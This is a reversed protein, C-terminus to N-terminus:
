DGIVRDVEDFTTVGEAVLSFGHMKLNQFRSQALAQMIEGQNNRTIASRIRDDITMLEFVGRRGAYGTGLCKQCGVARYIRELDKYPEGMERLQEETPAAPQKCYPCLTRVLRQALLLNLGSTIQFPEIGLDLLRFVSGLTDRSHVTSFVLHGTMAAQMATKATEVDRIEGVLIVDPDQRLTSRLLAAFTSGTEEHVPMQTVGEIQIEVPDEITVVNRESADISRLIAYLTSTKGSGTPGCVLLMGADRKIAKEITRFMQEPLNLDWLYRPANASDLCRIVLKQGFISPTMSVRYDVKRDPVRAVFNGEQVANRVSIDIDCLIKVLSLFRIGLDKKLSTITVMSGDVRIRVQYQDHKPEIHIDSARTRFCCLLVLRLLTVAEAPIEGTSVNYAGHVVEGRANILEIDGIGFPKFPLSEALTALQRAPSVGESEGSFSPMVRLPESVEPVPQPESLVPESSPNVQLIEDVPRSGISRPRAGGPVSSYFHFVKNGIRISDGHVLKQEVLILENNVSTGNRSGLDRVYVGDSRKEVVAHYRSMREDNVSIVNGAQRGITIPKDRIEVRRPGKPTQFELYPM